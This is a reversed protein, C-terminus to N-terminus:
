GYCDQDVSELTLYSVKGAGDFGLRYGAKQNGPAVIVPGNPTEVDAVDFSPYAEHVQAATSGIRVGEPTHVQADSRAILAAVGITPSVMASELPTALVAKWQACMGAPPPTDTFIGTAAAATPDMGITVPGWGFPGLVDNGGAQATTSTATATKTAATTSTAASSTGTSAATQTAVATGDTTRGCGAVAAGLMTAGLVTAAIAAAALAKTNM